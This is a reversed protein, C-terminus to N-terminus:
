VFGFHFTCPSCWVALTAICESNQLSLHRMSLMGSPGAGIICYQHDTRASCPIFVVFVLLVTELLACSTISLGCITKMMALRISRPFIRCFKGVVHRSASCFVRASYTCIFLTTTRYLTCFDSVYGAAMYPEITVTIYV